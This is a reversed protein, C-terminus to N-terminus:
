KPKSHNGPIKEEAEMEWPNKSEAEMEWVPPCEKNLLRAFM